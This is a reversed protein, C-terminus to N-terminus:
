TTYNLPQISTQIYDIKRGCIGQKLEKHTWKHYLKDMNTGDGCFARSIFVYEDKKRVALNEEEM